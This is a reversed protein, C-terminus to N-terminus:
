PYQERARVSMPASELEQGAITMGVRSQGFDVRTTQSEAPHQRTNSWRVLRVVYRCDASVRRSPRVGHDQSESVQSVCRGALKHTVGAHRGGLPALVRVVPALAQRIRTAHRRHSRQSWLVPELNAFEFRSVRKRGICAVSNRAGIGKSGVSNELATPRTVLSSGCDGQLRCFQPRPVLRIAVACPRTLSLVPNMVQDCVAITLTRGCSCVYQEHQARRFTRATKMPGTDRCALFSRHDNATRSFPKAVM